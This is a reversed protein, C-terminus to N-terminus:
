IFNKSTALFPHLRHVFKILVIGPYSLIPFILIETGHSFPLNEYRSHLFFITKLNDITKIKWELGEGKAVCFVIGEQLVNVTMM